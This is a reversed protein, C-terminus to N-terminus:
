FYVTDRLEFRTVERYAGVKGLRWLYVDLDVEKMNRVPGVTSEGRTAQIIEECAVVAAARLRTADATGLDEHAAVRRAIQDPIRIVGLHALMTPVVNDSFITLSDIDAFDFRASDQTRFLIYLHYALIQAKKFLYVNQGDVKAMDRFGPFARVLREVLAAASPAKGDEPKTAQLIFHALSTYGGEQLTLGTENLVSTIGEALKRLEHPESMTVFPMGEPHVERDLPIQFTQSVEFISISRLYTATMPLGGIHHSMAGFRITDFAGRDVAEHLPVRYGSGFNLLDVFAISNIEQETTDFKLPMRISTDQLLEEFQAKNLDNLFSRVGDASVELGDTRDVCARCSSRVADLFSQGSSPLDQYTFSSGISPM